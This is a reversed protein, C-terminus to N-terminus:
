WTLGGLYPTPRDYCLAHRQCRIEEFLVAAKSTRAEPHQSPVSSNTAIIVTGRAGVRQSQVASNTAIIVNGRASVRQGISRVGLLLHASHWQAREPSVRVNPDM